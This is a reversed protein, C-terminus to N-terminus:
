PMVTYHTQVLFAIAQTVLIAWAVDYQTLHQIFQLCQILEQMSGWRQAVLVYDLSLILNYRFPVSCYVHM